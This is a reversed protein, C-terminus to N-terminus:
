CVSCMNQLNMRFLQHAFISGNPFCLSLCWYAEPWLIKMLIKVTNKAQKQKFVAQKFYETSENVSFEWGVAHMGSPFKHLM